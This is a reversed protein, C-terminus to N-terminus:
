NLFSDHCFGLFSKNEPSTWIVPGGSDGRGATESNDGVMCFGNKKIKDWNTPLNSGKRLDKFCKKSNMKNVKAYQLKTSTQNSNDYYGFGMIGLEDKWEKEDIANM